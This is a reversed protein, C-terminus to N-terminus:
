IRRTDIVAQIQGLKAGNGQRIGNPTLRGIENEASPQNNFQQVLLDTFTATKRKYGTTGVNAMNSSIVDLNKQLQGLTNTATIM